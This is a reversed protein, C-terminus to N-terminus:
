TTATNKIDFYYEGAKYVTEQGGEAFTLEGSIVYRIGPGVHHHVGVYGDPAFTLETARLKFKGNLETLHGFIVEEIKVESTIGRTEVPEQAALRDTEGLLAVLLLLTFCRMAKEMAKGGGLLTIFQRRTM